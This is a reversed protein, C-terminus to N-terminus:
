SSLVAWQKFKRAGEGHDDVLISAGYNMTVYVRLEMGKFEGVLREWKAQIDTSPLLPEGNSDLMSWFMHVTGVYTPVGSEQFVEEIEGRFKNIKLAIVDFDLVRDGFDVIDEYKGTKEMRDAMSTYMNEGTKTDPDYTGAHEDSIVIIKRKRMDEYKFDPSLVAPVRGELKYLTDEVQQWKFKVMGGEEDDLIQDLMIGVSLIEPPIVFM